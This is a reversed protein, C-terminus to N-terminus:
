KKLMKKMKKLTLKSINKNWESFKIMGKESLLIAIPRTVEIHALVINIMVM